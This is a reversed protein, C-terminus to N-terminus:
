LLAAEHLLYAVDLIFSLNDGPYFLLHILWAQRLRDAPTEAGLGGRGDFLGNGM